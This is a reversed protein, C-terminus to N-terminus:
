LRNEAIRQLRQQQDPTVALPTGAPPVAPVLHQAIRRLLEGVGQGSQSSVALSGPPWAVGTAPPLDSKHLVVLRRTALELLEYDEPNPLQSADWLMIALDAQALAARTRRVGEQEIPHVTDRIGASDTLRVPWGEIATDLTVLDRTTGAEASVISRTFGAIANMLSSKGVNPRGCLVVEWPSTLHQVLPLWSQMAAVGSKRAEGTLSELRTLERDGLGTTQELLIDAARQTRAQTVMSWVGELAVEHPVFGREVLSKQIRQIAAIGGHCSVELSQESTRALVVDEAPAAGWSGFCLVNVPQQCLPRGHAARFLPPAEELRALDGTVRLVAIASRGAGTLLEVTPSITMM